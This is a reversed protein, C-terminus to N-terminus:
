FDKACLTKFVKMNEVNELTQLYKAAKYEGLIDKNSVPRKVYIEAMKMISNIILNDNGEPIMNVINEPLNQIWLVRKLMEPNKYYPLLLEVIDQYHQWAAM